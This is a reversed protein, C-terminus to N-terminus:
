KRRKRKRQLYRATKVKTSKTQRVKEKQKKLLSKRSREYFRIEADEDYLVFDIKGAPVDVRVVQVELADGVRYSVGSQEGTISRTTEDYIYYDDTMDQLRILGEVTNDLAAFMGFPTVSSVVADFVDGLRERMFEAKKMDEVTREADVAALERQSSHEAAEKVYAAMKEENLTGNLHAKIMRHVVLDPYRRIPSTFHCYYKAALGFHGLNEHSYRAKMLSRLAVNSIIMEEKTGAIKRILEALERPHVKGASHKITYGMPAIFKAFEKIADPEPEEHVRYVTPIGLWYLYEAVTENCVLMFEEIISNSVSRERKVIDVPVGDENLIIRAEDFDFDISGRSVRKKRLIDRLHHMDELMPVIDSFRERKESDGELIATVNTYTMRHKSCIIGEMIEHSVVGGSADIEMVVSLTLRDEGENLSCIGNSLSQPLMPIVRDALYISTGRKYAEQDITGGKPVYHGVDAIHVGLEFNGNALKKVHVADDLDKADDGDITIITETRFDTRKEAYLKPTDEAAVRACSVVEEPFQYPINRSEIVSLIDVGPTHVNGLVSIVKGEPKSLGTSRKTLQAVVMDNNKAGHLANKPIFFDQAYRRNVPVLFGSTGRMDMRGVIRHEASKIIRVVEGESRKEGDAEAHLKVLVTDGHLAGGVHEKSIFIDEEQEGIEVFGFGRENGIFRGAAMGSAAGSAYRNKKTKIVKGESELADLIELFEPMAENPVSLMVAMEEATMPIKMNDNIFGFVKEKQTM